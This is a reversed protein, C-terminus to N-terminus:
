VHARGIQPRRPNGLQEGEAICVRAEHPRFDDQKLFQVPHTAVVPMDLRAALRLAAQVYSEDGDAGSRQLEIFYVDPHREAWSRALAAADEERGAELAQGVDGARSGMR